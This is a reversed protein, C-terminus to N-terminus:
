GSRTKLKFLFEMKCNAIAAMEFLYESVQIGDNQLLFKKEYM